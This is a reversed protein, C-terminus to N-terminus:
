SPATETMIAELRDMSREMMSVPVVPWSIRDHWKEPIGSWDCYNTVDTVTDSVPELIFGYVHGIPTRGKAGVTWAFERDPDFRVVTNQVEYKGLDVDGLPERDMKMEFTDGVARTPRADPAAMLMGSGDMAVHQEPDTVVAFIAAAPANIRRRAAVRQDESM